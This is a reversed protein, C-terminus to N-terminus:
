LLLEHHLLISSHPCPSLNGAGVYLVTTAEYAQLELASDHLHPGWTALGDSDLVRSFHHLETLNTASCQACM